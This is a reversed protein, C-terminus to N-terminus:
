NRTGIGIGSGIGIVENMEEDIGPLLRATREEAGAGLRGGGGWVYVTLRGGVEEGGEVSGCYTGVYGGLKLCVGDRFGDVM